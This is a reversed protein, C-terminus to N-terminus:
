FKRAATLAADVPNTFLISDTIATTNIGKKTLTAVAAGLQDFDVGTQAAITAVNGISGSLEGITTKGGKMTTFLIDSVDTATLGDAAYANLVTTLGDAATAVDTVGGVALKNAAELNEMQEAAGQAGASIVQYLARAQDTPAQGYEVSLKRVSDSLRKMGEPTEDVLPSVEAMAKEFEMASRTALVLGAAVAAGALKFNRNWKDNLQKAQREMKRLETKSRASARKMDTEFDATSAGLTVVLKAISAM